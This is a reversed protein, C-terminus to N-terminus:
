LGPSHWCRVFFLRKDPSGCYNSEITGAHDALCGTAPQSLNEAPAQQPWPKKGLAMAGHM